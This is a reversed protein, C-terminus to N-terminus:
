GKARAEAICHELPQSSYGQDKVRAPFGWVIQYKTTDMVMMSAHCAHVGGQCPTSSLYREARVDLNEFM